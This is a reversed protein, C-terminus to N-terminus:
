GFFINNDTNNGKNSRTDKDVVYTGPFTSNINYKITDLPLKSRHDVVVVVSQINWLSSYIECIGYKINYGFRMRIMRRVLAWGIQQEWEREIIHHETPGFCLGM